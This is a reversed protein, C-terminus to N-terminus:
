STVHEILLGSATVTVQESAADVPVRFDQALTRGVEVAVSEVVQSQFGLAGVEIRYTGSPLAAIQYNGQDDTQATREEGTAQNSMAITAGPIVAGAPDFVRGFLRAGSQGQSPSAFVIILCALPIVLLANGRATAQM